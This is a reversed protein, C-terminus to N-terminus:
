KEEKKFGIEGKIFDWGDNGILNEQKDMMFGFTVWMLDCVEHAEKLLKKSNNGSQSWLTAYVGYESLALVKDLKTKPTFGLCEAASKLHKKGAEQPSVAQISITYKGEPLKDGTAEEMNVFDIVLWYDFDGNNFKKSVFKAGYDLVNNDGTLFKFRM